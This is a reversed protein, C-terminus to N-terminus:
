ARKRLSVDLANEITVIHKALAKRHSALLANLEDTYALQQEAEALIEELRKECEIVATSSM